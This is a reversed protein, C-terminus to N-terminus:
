HAEGPDTPLMTEAPGQVGNVILNELDSPQGRGRDM